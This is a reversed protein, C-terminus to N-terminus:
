KGVQVVSSSLLVILRHPRIANLQKCYNKLKPQMKNNQTLSKLIDSCMFFGRPIKNFLCTTLILLLKYFHLKNHNKM